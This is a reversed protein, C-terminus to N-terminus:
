LMAGITLMGAVWAVFAVIAERKTIPLRHGFIMM